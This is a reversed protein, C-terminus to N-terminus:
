GPTSLRAARMTVVPCPAHRIVHEAVSGLILRSVGTRGHTGMVILDAHLQEAVAVVTEGIAIPRVVVAVQARAGARTAAEALQGELEKTEDENPLLVEVASLPDGSPFWGIVHILHIPEESKTATQLNAAWSLASAASDSFDFPVLMRPNM